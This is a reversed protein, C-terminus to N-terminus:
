LVWAVASTAFSPATEFSRPEFTVSLEIGSAGHLEDPSCREDDPDTCVEGLRAWIERPESPVAELLHYGRDLPGLVEAAFSGPPLSTEVYVIFHSPIGGPLIDTWQLVAPDATEALGRLAGLAVRPEDLNEERQIATLTSELAGEPPPGAELLSYAGDASVPVIAAALPMDFANWVVGLRPPALHGEVVGSLEFSDSGLVTEPADANCAVLTSTVTLLLPLTLKNM